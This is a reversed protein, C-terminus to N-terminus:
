DIGSFDPQRKEAFAQMAEINAPGGLLKAFAADEQKRAEAIAAGMAHTITRKCEMLSSIPKSALVEAHAMTTAMLDGPECVKFALGMEYVDDASLWESSMLAWTANQRGIQAPFTYSSALEPAVGLSTFPFKLRAQSSLFVLDSLGLVTAGFGLGMGNVATILPKAFSVLHDTLGSFGYTGQTTEGAAITAMEYIDQGACFADGTGTLVVVAISSDDAAAILAETLGDWMMANMANKAEPRNLTITRIRGTDATDIM